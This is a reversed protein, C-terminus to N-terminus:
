SSSTVLDGHAIQALITPHRHRRFKEGGPPSSKSSSGSMLIMTSSMPCFSSTQPEHEAGDFAPFHHDRAVLRQEGLMAALDKLGGRLVLHRNEKLRGHGAADRDDLRDPFREDAIVDPRNVANDIPVLL